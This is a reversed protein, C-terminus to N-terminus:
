GKNLQIYLTQNKALNYDIIEMRYRGVSLNNSGSISRGLSTQSLVSDKSGEKYVNFELDTKSTGDVQITYQGESLITFELFNYTGLKNALSSGTTNYNPYISIRKGIELSAYLPNANIKRNGRDKGYIDNIPSISENSTIADIKDKELPYEEKLATIFSFISTFAPTNKQKDILVKHIAEFGLSLRDGTDDHSDYIDYLIDYVSAESYWGANARHGGAELDERVALQAQKTGLSDRYMKNEIIMCGVSTGFGEGFALRIDLQDGEGHPGGVSDSRSFMAEYYHSWEHAVVGTDYEDTDQDEKGLIYLSEGNFHSTTIQGLKINGSAALNNVSWFINLPPFIADSQATKIKEMGAYAIDLIAFPAAARRSSYSSAGWGSSVNLKPFSTGIDHFSGETAYLADGNTNDKVKFNWSAEGTAPSKFLKALVRVKATTGTVEISYQGTSSTDTRGLVNGLVDIVEVVAGRVPKKITNAYELGRDTLPVYDYSITGAITGRIATAFEITTTASTEGVSNTATFTYETKNVDEEVMGSITCDDHLTLGTPLDPTVRCSTIANGSNELITANKGTVNKTITLNEEVSLIPIGKLNNESSGGSGCGVFVAGVLVLYGISKKFM